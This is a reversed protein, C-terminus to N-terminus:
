ATPPNFATYFSTHCLYLHSSLKLISTM